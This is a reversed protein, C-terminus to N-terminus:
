LLEAYTLVHRLRFKGRCHAYCPRAILLDFAAHSKWFLLKPVCQLFSECNWVFFHPPQHAYILPSPISPLFYSVFNTSRSSISKDKKTSNIASLTLRPASVIAFRSLSSFFVAYFCLPFPLNCFPYCPM